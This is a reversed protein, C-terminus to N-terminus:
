THDLIKREINVINIVNSVPDKSQVIYRGIIEFDAGYKLALGIPAGQRVVGPSFIPVKKLTAKCEKIYKPKTAGVVLGDIGIRKAYELLEHFNDELLKAGKHSMVLVGFIALEREHAYNICEGISMPFLHAIVADFGVKSIINILEIQIHPVDALKLDAIFYLDHLSKVIENVVDMKELMLPLGIKIGVIYEEIESLIYRFKKNPLYDLAVILRSNKLKAINLLKNVYAM